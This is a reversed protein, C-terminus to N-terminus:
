EPDNTSLWDWDEAVYRDPIKIDALMRLWNFFKQCFYGILFGILYDM